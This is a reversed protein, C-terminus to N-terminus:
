GRKPVLFPRPGTNETLGDHSCSRPLGSSYPTVGSVVDPGVFWFQVQVPESYDLRVNQSLLKVVSVGEPKLPLATLGM